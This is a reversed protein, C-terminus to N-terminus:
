VINLRLRAEEGLPHSPHSVHYFICSLIDSLRKGIVKWSYLEHVTLANTVAVQRIGVDDLVDLITSRLSLDEPQLFVQEAENKFPITVPCKCSSPIIFDDTPGGKSTVVPIGCSMAELVPMNFGEALYPSLYVDAVNYLARMEDATLLDNIYIFRGSKVLKAWRKKDISRDTQLEKIISQVFQKSQYLSDTGKLVLYINDRTICTKYFCKIVSHIGKNQTMAGVSLIVKADRPIDLTDRLDKGEDISPYLKTEDVGHPLLSVDCKHKLLAQASWNSPTMPIIMGQGIKNVLTGIDGGTYLLRDMDQFEATYFLVVPVGDVTSVDLPTGIRYIIDIPEGKWIPISMLKDYDSGSLIGSEKLDVAEWNDRFPPIEKLYVEKIVDRSLNVLQFINVLAYSHPFKTWGEVLLRVMIDEKITVRM